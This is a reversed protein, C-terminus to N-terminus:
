SSPSAHSCHPDTPKGSPSDAHTPPFRIGGFPAHPDNKRGSPSVCGTQTGTAPVSEQHFLPNRQHTCAPHSSSPPRRHPRGVPTSFPGLPGPPTLTLESSCRFAPRLIWTLSSRGNGQAQKEPPEASETTVGDPASSQLHSVMLHRTRGHPDTRGPSRPATAPLPSVYSQSSAAFSSSCKNIAHM